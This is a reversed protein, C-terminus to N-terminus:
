DIGVSLRRKEGLKGQADFYLGAQTTVWALPPTLFCSPRQFVRFEVAPITESIRKTWDAPPNAVIVVARDTADGSFREFEAASKLANQGSECSLGFEAL